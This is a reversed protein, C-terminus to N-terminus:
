RKPARETETTGMKAWHDEQDAPPRGPYPLRCDVGARYWLRPVATSCRIALVTSPTACRDTSLRDTQACSRTGCWHSGRPGGATMSRWSWVSGGDTGDLLTYEEVSYRRGDEAVVEALRKQDEAEMAALEAYTARDRWRALAEDALRAAVTKNFAV